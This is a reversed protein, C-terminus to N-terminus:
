IHENVATSHAAVISLHFGCDSRGFRSALVTGIAGTHRAVNKMAAIAIRGAKMANTLHASM